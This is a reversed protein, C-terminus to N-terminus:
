PKGIDIVRHAWDRYFAAEHSVLLVTGPFKILADRLAERAARDLHNTPEDLVLFNCPRMTLLCLKVKAQEGGSLSELAQMAHRSSIGCRALRQRVQKNPLAPFAESVLALPTREPAGWRLAQEFYAVEAQQSFAFSGALAPLGGTLTKLLTSKGVGNFGTVVVKQGGTIRFDLGSLLPAHYGVSLRKVSLHMAATVPLAAFDFVPAGSALEPAELRELRDLQKQRGRAMRAKRGAGNRRIFEETRAIERQQAAYQRIADERLLAKKRVFDSYGGYYKILKGRDLDCIRNAARNLFEPDHSVVLFANPLAALYGSLWTVHEKDLFNTPEDLLLVGPRALLLRALIAKARQGGSLQAVPRDLGLGRLGLGSAVQEVRADITYFDQAELQEQYAAARRLAAEDGAAARAYHASMADQLAYLAHFAGCLYARLTVSPDIGAHQDLYGYTVGPQWAANGQDPVIDGTCIRLLTSKGAGNRGVVGVHEGPHLSLEANEFLATDGFTHSLGNLKLLSM